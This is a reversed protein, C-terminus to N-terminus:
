GESGNPYEKQARGKGRWWELAATVARNWFVFDHIGPTSWWEHAYGLQLLQEHFKVNNQYLFDESGCALFLQPCLRRSLCVSALHAPDRDTGKLAGVNGFTHQYYAPPINPLGTHKIAGSHVDDTLLASSFALIAGFTGAYNLGNRIAGYGGMSLGGIATDERKSSLQFMGRTIMVLEKGVMEGCNDGTVANDLYFLNGGDPMIVACGYRNALAEIDTHRLWDTRSGTIGHLLYLAPWPGPQYLAPVAGYPPLDIPLVATFSVNGQRTLSYYESHIIAM